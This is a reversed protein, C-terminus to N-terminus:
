NEIKGLRLVEMLKDPNAGDKTLCDALMKEGPIWKVSVNETQVCEQIQAIDLRLRRDEVFKTSNVAQFM